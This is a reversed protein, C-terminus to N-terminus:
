GVRHKPIQPHDINAFSLAADICLLMENESVEVENAKAWRRVTIEIVQCLLALNRQRASPLRQKSIEQERAALRDDLDAPVIEATQTDVWGRVFPKLATRLRRIAARVNAPKAKHESNLSSTTLHSNIADEIGWVLLDAVTKV